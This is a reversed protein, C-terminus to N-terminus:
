WGPAKYGTDLKRVACIWRRTERRVTWVGLCLVISYTALACNLALTSVYGFQLHTVFGFVAVPLLMLALPLGLRQARGRFEMDALKKKLPSHLVM